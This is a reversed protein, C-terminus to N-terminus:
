RLMIHGEILDIESIHWWLYHIIYAVSELGPNEIHRVNKGRTRMNMYMPHTCHVHVDTAESMAESESAQGM